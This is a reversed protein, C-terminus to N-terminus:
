EQPRWESRGQVYFSELDRALARLAIVVEGIGSGREICMSQMRMKEESEGDPHIVQRSLFTLDIFFDADYASSVGIQELRFAGPDSELTM